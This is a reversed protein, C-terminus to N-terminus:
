PIHLGASCYYGTISGPFLVILNSSLCTFSLILFLLNIQLKCSRLNIIVGVPLLSSEQLGSLPSHIDKEVHQWLQLSSPLSIFCFDWYWSPLWLEMGIQFSVATLLNGAAVPPHCVVRYVHLARLFRVFSFQSSFKSAGLFFTVKQSMKISYLITGPNM